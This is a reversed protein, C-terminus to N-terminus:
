TFFMRYIYELSCFKNLKAVSVELIEGSGRKPIKSKACNKAGIKALKLVNKKKGILVKLATELAILLNRRGSKSGDNM